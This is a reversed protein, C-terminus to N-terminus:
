KRKHTDYRLMLNEALKKVYREIHTSVRQYVEISGGIPDDIEESEGLLESLLYVKDQCEEIMRCVMKKHIHEM